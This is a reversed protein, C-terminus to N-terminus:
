FYQGVGFVFGKSANKTIGYGYDLRFVANFITKHIFRLGVGPYVRFNSPNGFDSFKGGPNRWSGADVFANGQLAFWGKEIITKRYETNLVLTGTGRDIINGVGRINLNNDVSFPSFPSANNTALGLRLRSAWNGNHGIQKYYLFDNWGIIFKNQYDNELTVYQFSFNSKFGNILYYNYNLDDYTYQFKFLNKNISLSKPIDPATAGKKYEYNENFFTTGLKFRNKYDYQYVGLVEYATNTYLYNAIDNNFFLPENSSLKQINLELGVYKTFLTPASFNFGFSNFENYQYFGGATINKGLLNFEYLGVRYSGSDDTTLINLTPILSFNETIIYNIEFLNTSKETIKYEAKSVGNLRNLLIVDKKITLSDLVAGKKTLILYSMFDKNMRKTNTFLITDVIKKQAFISLTFFFIILLFFRM